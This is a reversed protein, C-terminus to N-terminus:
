GDIQRPSKKRNVVVLMDSLDALASTLTEIEKRAEEIEQTLTEVCVGARERDIVAISSPQYKKGKM